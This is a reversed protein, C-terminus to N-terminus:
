YSLGTLFGVSRTLYLLMCLSLSYIICVYLEYRWEWLLEKDDDYLDFLADRSILEEVQRQWSEWSRGRFQKTVVNREPHKMACELVYAETPYVVTHAFKMFDLVICLGKSESGAIASVAGLPNFFSHDGKMTRQTHQKCNVRHTNQNM